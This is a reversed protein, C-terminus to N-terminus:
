LAVYLKELEDELRRLRQSIKEGRKYERNRYTSALARELKLKEKELEEIKEEIREPAIPIPRELSRKRRRVPRKKGEPAVTRQKTKRKEWFYSFNGPYEALHPTRIEVIRDVIRDLFYRDHSIVFITGEFEELAEEVQERSQIDLHNTPEDLLLLNADSIMLKALQVRSKEGGSLTEVKRDMDEWRFLFRSLVTFAQDKTLGREWRVEELISREPNLIEHEQAYYGLRTKPGIRLVPHEWSAGEVIDRFLSTKGTGNAGLLGVRDGFSIHLDVDQFLTKDGFAKAYGKLELAIRGTREEFDFSPNIRRRDLTPRQVKDMKDLMKRRRRAQRAHFPDMSRRAWLEYRRIIEEIRRIEKQQGEYAAKQKLLNRMKEARYASYNGSYATIKRDEIELIRDVVRDLLYRNHSVLIVTRDYSRLFEELWELGEFDLHNAPEDLLLVDPEELLIRALAVINKEGGSLSEIRQDRMASLRLGELVAEIRQDCTYGGMRELDELLQGYRNMVTQLKREDTAIEADGMMAEVDKLEEEVRRIPSFVDLIEQYVTNEENYKLEQALYGIKLHRSGIITGETIEEMGVIMKFLTSKGSGNEGVLGVKEGRNIKLSINELITDAGFAKTINNLELITMTIIGPLAYPTPRM